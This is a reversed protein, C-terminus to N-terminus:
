GVATPRFGAGLEATSEVVARGTVTMPVPGLLGILPLDTTVDVAAVPVPGSRDVRVTTTRVATGAISGALIRETRQAGARPDAGAMAALRAGESAAQVMVSRVHLALALQLVAVAILL